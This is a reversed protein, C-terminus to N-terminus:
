FKDLMMQYIHRDMINETSIPNRKRKKEKKDEQGTSMETFTIGSSTIAIDLGGNQKQTSM